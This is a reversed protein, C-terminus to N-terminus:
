VTSCVSALLPCPLRTPGAPGLRQLVAQRLDAAPPVLVLPGLDRLIPGFRVLARSLRSKVTGRAVRLLDAIELESLDLFYRCTIILRDAEPLDFLAELLM